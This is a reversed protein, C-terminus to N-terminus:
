EPRAAAQEIKWSSPGQVGLDDAQSNLPRSWRTEEKDNRPSTALVWGRGRGDLAQSLPGATLGEAQFDRGLSTGARELGSPLGKEGLEVRGM